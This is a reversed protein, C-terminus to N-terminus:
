SFTSMYIESFEWKLLGKSLCCPLRKWASKFDLDYCRSWIWQDSDFWNLQFFDRKNVHWIKPRSTLVNAASSFYGKRLLSLKFMGIWICNDSFCCGKGWNKSANKFDLNLKLCKSFFIIRMSRANGFNPVGFFYDSLHIFLGTESSGKGLLMIFTGFCQQFIQWVVKIMNM